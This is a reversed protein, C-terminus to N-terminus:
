KNRRSLLLRLVNRADNLYLYNKTKSFVNILQILRLELKRHKVRSEFLEFMQKQAKRLYKYNDTLDFYNISKRLENKKHEYNTIVRIKIFDTDQEM